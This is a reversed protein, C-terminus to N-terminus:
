SKDFDPDSELEKIEELSGKIFKKLVIIQCSVLVGRDRLNQYILKLQSLKLKVM